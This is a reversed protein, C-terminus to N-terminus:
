KGGFGSGGTAPATPATPPPATGGLKGGGVPAAPVPAAPTPATGGLKAGPAPTAPPATKSGAAAAPAAPAAPKLEKEYKEMRSVLAGVAKAGEEGGKDSAAKFEGEFELVKKQIDAKMMPMKTGLAEIRDKTEAYRKKQTELSPKGCGTLGAFVVALLAVLGLTLIRKMQHNM